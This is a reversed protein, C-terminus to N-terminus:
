SKSFHKVCQLVRLIFVCQTVPSPLDSLLPYQSKDETFLGVKAMVNVVARSNVASCLMVPLSNLLRARNQTFSSWVSARTQTRNGEPKKLSPQTMAPLCMNGFCLSAPGHPPFSGSDFMVVCLLRAHIEGKNIVGSVCILRTM